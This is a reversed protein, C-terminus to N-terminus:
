KNFFGDYVGMLFIITGTLFGWFKLGLNGMNLVLQKKTEADKSKDELLDIRKTHDALMENIKHIDEKDAKTSLSQLLQAFKDNLNAWNTSQIKELSEFQTSLRILLDHDKNEDAM